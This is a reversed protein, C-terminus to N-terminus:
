FGHLWDAVAAIQEEAMLAPAHGCDSFTITRARPNQRTMQEATEATLTDSDAGRLILVPCQVMSWIPWLDVDHAEQRFGQGIAQDYVLKYAGDDASVCSHEAMHRWQEDTLDGFGANVRRFYGVVEEFSSFRLDAGVYEGIRAIAAKPIFPGIDNLILRRIPSNAQAALMMGILGGMSTGVWDVKEAGLRAIMTAM